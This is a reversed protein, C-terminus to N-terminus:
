TQLFVATNAAELMAFDKSRVLSTALLLNGLFKMIM